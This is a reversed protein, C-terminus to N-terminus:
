TLGRILTKTLMRDVVRKSAFVLDVILQTLGFYEINLDISAITPAYGCNFELGHILNIVTTNTCGVRLSGCGVRLPM